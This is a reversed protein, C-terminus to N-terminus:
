ILVACIVAAAFALIGIVPFLCSAHSTLTPSSSAGGGAGVSASATMMTTTALAPASANLNSNCDTTNCCLLTFHDTLTWDQLADFTTRLQQKAAQMDATSSFWWCKMVLFRFNLSPRLTRQNDVIVKVKRSTKAIFCHVFRPTFGVLYSIYFTFM